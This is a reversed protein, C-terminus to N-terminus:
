AQRVEICQNKKWPMKVNNEMELTFVGNNQCKGGIGEKYCIDISYQFRTILLLSWCMLLQKVIRWRLCFCLLISTLFHCLQVLAPGLTYKSISYLWYCHRKKLPATTFSTNKFMKLFTALQTILAM